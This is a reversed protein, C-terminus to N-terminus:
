QEIYERMIACEPIETLSFGLASDLEKIADARSLAKDRSALSIELASFPIMDSEM